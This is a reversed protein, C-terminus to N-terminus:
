KSFLRNLLISSNLLPHPQHVAGTIKTNAKIVKPHSKKYDERVKESAYSSYRGSKGLYKNIVNNDSKKSLNAKFQTLAFEFQNM